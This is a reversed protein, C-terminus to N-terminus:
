FLVLEATVKAVCVVLTCPEEVESTTTMPGERVRILETGEPRDTPELVGVIVDDCSVNVVVSVESGGPAKM